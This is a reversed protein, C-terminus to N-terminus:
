YYEYKIPYTPDKTINVGMAYYEVDVIIFKAGVCETNPPKTDM